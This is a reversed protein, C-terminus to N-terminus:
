QHRDFICDKDERHATAFFYALGYNKRHKVMYKDNKKQNTLNGNNIRIRQKQGNTQKKKLINQDAPNEKNRWM